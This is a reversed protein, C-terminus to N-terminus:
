ALHCAAEAAFVIRYALDVGQGDLESRSLLHEVFLMIVERLVAIIGVCVSESADALMIDDNGAQGCALGAGVGGRRNCHLHLGGEARNSEPQHDPDSAADRACFCINSEPINNDALWALTM